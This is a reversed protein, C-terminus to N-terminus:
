VTRNSTVKNILFKEFLANYRVSLRNAIKIIEVIQSNLLLAKKM